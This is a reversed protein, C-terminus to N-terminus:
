MDPNTIAQLFEEFYDFGSNVFQLLVPEQFEYKGTPLLMGGIPTHLLSREMNIINKKSSASVIFEGNDTIYYVGFIDNSLMYDADNVHDNNNNFAMYLRGGEHETIMTNYEFELPDEEFEDPDALIRYVTIFESHALMMAAETNSIHLGPGRVCGSVKFAPRDSTCEAITIDTVLLEYKSDHEALSRSIYHGNKEHITNKLLSVLPLDSFVDLLEDEAYSSNAQKRDGTSLYHIGERDKALCRMIFYNVLQEHSIIDTCLKDFLTDLEYPDLFVPDDILFRYENIGTHVEPKEGSIHPYYRTFLARAEKESLL